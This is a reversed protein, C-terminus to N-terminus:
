NLLYVEVIDGKEFQRESEDMYVLANAYVFSSLMASSQNNNISVQGECIGAKLLHARGGKKFHSHTLEGKTKYLFPDALGKMYGIMPQVYMYFCTMVAAPNGPLAFVRKNNQVGFFLPKGPKQKVKYFVEQVGLKELASKVFDYEGVSIGGTLIVVDSEELANEIQNVTSDFDDKILYLDSEIRMTKLLSQLTKSNSEYVKGPELPTGPQCLEDGSVIIGIKPNQFVEVETIGLGSLYGIAAPNIKSGKKLALEGKTIEEGQIRISTGEKVNEELQIQNRDVSVIEQKAIATTGKPTAAGTFIRSAQGEKLEKQPYAGAQIEEIVEFQNGTGCIAYGDMASQDFPPMDILSYVDDSLIMGLADELKVKAPQMRISHDTIAKLAQQISIM